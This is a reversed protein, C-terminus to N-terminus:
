TAATDVTAAMPSSARAILRAVTGVVLYGDNKVKCYPVDTDM